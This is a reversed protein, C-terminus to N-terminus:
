KYIIKWNNLYKKKDKMLQKDFSTLETTSVPKEAFIIRHTGNNFRASKNRIMKENNELFAKPLIYFNHSSLDSALTVLVMYDFYCFDGLIKGHRPHMYYASPHKLCKKVKIAFGYGLGYGEEKLRSTKIEVNIKEKGKILQTDARNQGSNYEVDFGKSGFIKKM